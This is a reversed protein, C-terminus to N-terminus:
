QGRAAFNVVLPHHDSHFTDEMRRCQLAPSGLPARAFVHDLAFGLTHTGESGCDIRPVVRSITEVASERRGLMSNLDGGVVLPLDDTESEEFEEFASVLSQAQRNRAAPGGLFWGHGVSARTDLHAVAVRLWPVGEFDTVTAMLAVRRQVVFPLEVAVFDSLPLSSLIANGRDEGTEGGQSGNRMSPVYYLWWGLARAVDEIETGPAIRRPAVGQAAPVERGRRFSEQLLLVFEPSRHYTAREDRSIKDVLAVVEGRGVHVNWNVLILRSGSDGQRVVEPAFLVVPGVSDCWEKTATGKWHVSIQNPTGATLVQKCSDLLSASAMSARSCSVTLIFLIPLLTRPVGLPIASSWMSIARRLGIVLKLNHGDTMFFRRSPSAGGTM